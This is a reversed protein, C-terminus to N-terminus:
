KEEEEFPPEKGQFVVFDEGGLVMWANEHVTGKCGRQDGNQQMKGWLGKFLRHQDRLTVFFFELEDVGWFYSLFSFLSGESPGFPERKRVNDLM